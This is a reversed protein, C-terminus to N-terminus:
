FGNFLVTSCLVYINCIFSGIVERIFREGKCFAFGGAGEFDDFPFGGGGGFFM